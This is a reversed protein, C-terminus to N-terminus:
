KNAGVNRLLSEIETRDRKIAVTLATQGYVNRVNMDAETYLLIQVVEAHGNRTARLLATYGIEDKANVH